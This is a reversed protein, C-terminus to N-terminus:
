SAESSPGPLEVLGFGFGAARSRLNKLARDRYMTDYFEPGLDRYPIGSNLMTYLITALKRATATNAKQPGLRTRLRRYYAGLYSQSFALSRAALRFAQAARNKTKTRQHGLLKGGSIRNGPALGLWKTFKKSSKWKGMDFGTESLVTLVTLSNMGDISTLDVGALRRLQRQFGPHAQKHHSKKRGSRPPAELEQGDDTRTGNMQVLCEQIRGECETLKQRYFDYLEVAEKLIFLNDDTYHGRLSERIVSRPNKLGSRCYKLLGDPDQEGRLIARIIDMGTAGTVDTIVTHLKINMLDLAKHMHQIHEAACKTLMDRHRLYTRLTRIESQPQFSGALLGFTHLRQLWQCDSVDTKDRGPVNKVHRANVLLVEFGREELIQFLAIWYVGTSEMAVTTVRCERLWEALRYLDATFTGFSRVPETDRGEPVAVHHERSGVDVGAADVNIQALVDRAVRSSKRVKAKGM